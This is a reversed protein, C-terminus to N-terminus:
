VWLLDSMITDSIFMGERSLLLKDGSRVMFGRRIYPTAQMLCYNQKEEGFDTLVTTLDIGWMTRLGTIMYDNYRKPVNLVETAVFPLNNNIGRIYKSLSSVNWQRSEKNYSHASPGIGLYTSGTWYSSNHLSFKGPKAFNSIEYHIYGAEQLRDILHNFLSISTEEDIPFVKNNELLKHLRTGEEYTLHYASIHPVELKLAETLNIEWRDITQGPLGYILDISINDLGNDRCLSVARIAQERNHRRELFRLDDDHFSQVGMSIRNFPLSCLSRVYDPLMDDPNVELTIEADRRVPFFRYITEFIQEFDASSLQSPTGGGFYITEITKDELYDKQLEMEKCIAIIFSRNLTM